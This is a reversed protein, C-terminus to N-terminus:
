ENTRQKTERREHAKKEDAELCATLRSLLFEASAAVVFLSHFCRKIQM